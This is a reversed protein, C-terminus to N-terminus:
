PVGSEISFHVPPFGCSERIRLRLNRPEPNSTGHIPLSQVAYSFTRRAIRPSEMSKRIGNIEREM